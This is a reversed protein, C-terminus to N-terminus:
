DQKLLEALGFSCTSDRNQRSNAIRNWVACTGLHQCYKALKVKLGNIEAQKTELTDPFTPKHKSHFAKNGSSDYCDCDEKGCLSCHNDCDGKEMGCWCLPNSEPTQKVQKSM